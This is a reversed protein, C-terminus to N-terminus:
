RLRDSDRIYLFYGLCIGDQFAPSALRTIGQSEGENIQLSLYMFFSWRCICPWALGEVGNAVEASQHKSWQWSIGEKCQRWWRPCCRATGRSWQQRCEESVGDEGAEDGRQCRISLFPVPSIKTSRMRFNIPLALERTDRAEMCNLAWPELNIIANGSSYLM